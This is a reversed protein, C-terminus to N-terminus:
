GVKTGWGQYLVATSRTPVIDVDGQRTVLWRLLQGMAPRIGRVQLAVGHRACEDVLVQPPIFLNPDHIGPPAGGPVREGLTVTVFRGVATANITDLVVLGGPRLLRCAEEVVISLNPVHELIEGACVVDACGSRLPVARVDARMALVGHERAQVLSSTVLDVGVHRYGLPGVKPALLGGGCGLDVLLSGPRSAKPLLAARATALWRLMVFAGQPQWWQAVLQDYQRVDNRPLRLDNRPQAHPM